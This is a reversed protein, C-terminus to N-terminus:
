PRPSTASAMGRPRTSQRRSSESASLAVIAGLVALSAGFKLVALTVGAISALTSLGRGLRWTAYADASMTPKWEYAIGLRKSVDESNTTLPRAFEARYGHEHEIVRGWLKVQGVLLGPPTDLPSRFAYIGCTCGSAPAEHKAHGCRAVLCRDVPWAENRSLSLLSGSPGPRWARWGIIAGAIDPTPRM